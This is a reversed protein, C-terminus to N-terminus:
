GPDLEKTVVVTEGKRYTTKETSIKVHDDGILTVTYENTDCGTILLCTFVTLVLMVTYLLVRKKTM